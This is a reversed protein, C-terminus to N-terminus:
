NLLKLLKLRKLPLMQNFFGIIILSKLNLFFHMQFNFFVKVSSMVKSTQQQKKFDIITQGNKGHRTELLIGSAQSDSSKPQQEGKQTTTTIKKVDALASKIKRGNTANVSLDPKADPGAHPASKIREISHIPRRPKKLEASIKNLQANTLKDYKNLALTAVPFLEHDIFETTSNVNIDDVILTTMSNNCLNNTNNITSRTTSTATTTTALRHLNSNFLKLHNTKASDARGRGREASTLSLQKIRLTDRDFYRRIKVSSSM